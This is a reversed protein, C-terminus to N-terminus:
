NRMTRIRWARLLELPVRKILSFCWRGCLQPTPCSLIAVYFLKNWIARFESCNTNLGNLETINGQLISNQM